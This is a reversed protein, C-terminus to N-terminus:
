GMYEKGATLPKQNGLVFLPEMLQPYVRMAELVGLVSLRDALQDLVSKSRLVAFYLMLTRMLQPRDSLNLLALPKTYGAKTILDIQDICM